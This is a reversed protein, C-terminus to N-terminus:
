QLPEMGMWPEAKSQFSLPKTQAHAERVSASGHATKQTEKLALFGPPLSLPLSSSSQGRLRPRGQQGVSCPGPPACLAATGTCGQQVLLGSPVFWM